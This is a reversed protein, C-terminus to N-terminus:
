RRRGSYEMAEGKGFGYSFGLTIFRGRLSRRYSFANGQTIESERIRSVFIDRVSLNVIAKGKLIKKRIGIDAFTMASVRGQVIKERSRHQGTIEIDIDAPLKFKTTLKASWQDANFDFSTAEFVGERNFYNYNIDGTITIKKSPNYKGNLEVGVSQRTGINYPRTTNVNDEFTSIREVVDDTFRYYVGLNLTTKGLLYISTVEYSDTFEPLLNPNGVRINFNNRINFFPNLDWLRPRFIRKSYGGQISVRESFKYSTHVTPFVNTFNQDNTENTNILLTSLDTNEARVGLKIGWGNEEYAGTAYVGLVNQEYEFINTLNPNEVWEGGFDDLVAFDNSVNNLVYHVGTEMTFKDLIPKTYDLQITYKSEQFNTRTLQDSGAAAGVVDINEFESSQDKGFFNGLFSFLLNHEKDDKFDKKYQLEYQFKPNTAETVETRFWEAIPQNNEDTQIFNTRSPQDEVEYAFRGSLTVVNYKNIHYDTGLNINYFQENRFETGDSIIAENTTLNRNINDNERPLERYGVGIQSFLNFKETRRNLSVGISHNHPTGTNLSISGNLGEREEKKIVINLIGATGEAEYKASPNTIVEIKEIMDATITGLANGQESALVSPKGNILIQVGASGRLSVEGEINVNVSPVNNLVELASAGTSSIDKGVNFVRKDLKFETTSKEARVVVEDLLESDTSLFVTGIDAVKKNFEINEIRKNAFGIFSIEVYIDKSATRLEFYGDLDTTTGTIMEKTEADMISVTAFEIVQQSQKEKVFGKITLKQQAALTSSCIFFFLIFFTTSVAKM